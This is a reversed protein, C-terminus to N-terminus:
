FVVFVLCLSLCVFSCVCLPVSLFCVFMRVDLGEYMEKDLDVFAKILADKYDGAKFAPQSVLKAHLRDQTYQATQTGGHGDYV